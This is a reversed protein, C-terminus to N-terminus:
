IYLDPNTDRYSNLSQESMKRTEQDADNSLCTTILSLVQNFQSQDM